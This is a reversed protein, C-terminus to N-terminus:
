QSVRNCIDVYVFDLPVSVKIGIFTLAKLIGYCENLSEKSDQWNLRDLKDAFIKKLEEEMENTIEIDRLNEEKSIGIKDLILHFGMNRSNKNEALLSEQTKKSLVIM